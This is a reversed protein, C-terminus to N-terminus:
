ALVKPPEPWFPRLLNIDSAQFCGSCGHEFLVRLGLERSSEQLAETLLGKNKTTRAEPEPLLLRNKRSTTTVEQVAIRSAGNIQLHVWLWPLMDRCACM